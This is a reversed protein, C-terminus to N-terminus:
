NQGSFFKEPISAVTFNSGGIFIVDESDAYQLCYNLAAPVEPIERSDLGAETLLRQMEGAPLARPIDPQCAILEAHRPLLEIIKRHDKDSVMGWVIRLKKCPLACLQQMVERIGDENHAIDCITLPNQQLVDWRGRLGTNEKVKRIGAAIAGESIQFGRSRLLRASALIGPLNKLQYIGTLGLELDFQNGNSRDTVQVRRLGEQLGLDQVNFLQGALNLSSGTADSKKQFVGETEPLVEGIVVPVDPKIIGAKEFAIEALSNGLFQQHDWGISTILSLEPNIVNTSDLRGGMGTEIVAVDVGEGAFYDFALAVTLEFFSPEITDALSKWEAVKKVVYDGPIKAGSIRIRERFDFLHPSTYLGTRYGSEQLISALSHSCSGKGNTGAIHISKFKKHPNGVSELLSLTRELGPKYAAAGIRHFVPLRSYLYELTEAYNM